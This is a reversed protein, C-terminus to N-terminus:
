LVYYGGTKKSGRHEVLEEQNVLEYLAIEVVDHGEIQSPLELRGRPIPFIAIPPDARSKAVAWANGDSIVACNNSTLSYKYTYEGVKAKYTETAFAVNCALAFLIMFRIM